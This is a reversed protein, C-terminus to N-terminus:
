TLEDACSSWANTAQEVVYGGDDTRVVRVWWGDGTDENLIDVQAPDKAGGGQVIWDENPPREDFGEPAALWADLAGIPDEAGPEALDPRYSQGACAEAESCGTVLAGLVLLLAAPAAPRLLVCGAHHM